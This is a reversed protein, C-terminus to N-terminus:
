RHCSARRSAISGDQLRAQATRAPHRYRQRHGPRCSTKRRISAVEVAVRPPESSYKVANDVLNSVAVRLEDHDGLVLPRADGTSVNPISFRVAAGTSSRKFRNCANRSSQALTSSRAISEVAACGSEDPRCCKSSPACNGTPTPRAHHFLVGEQADRRRRADALTELYLRISAIPTKLEHTVANIFGDHQENRRIERVLFITNLVIGLIIATFLIVGFVLLAVQRWNLLIWGVNLAIALAVLCAGFAIFFVISKQRSRLRM